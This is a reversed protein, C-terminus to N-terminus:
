AGLYRFIKAGYNGNTLLLINEDGQVALVPGGDAAFTVVGHGGFSGDRSGNTRIRELLAFTDYKSNFYSGAAVIRGSPDFALNHIMGDVGRAVLTSGGGAFTPDPEGTATLRTVASSCPCLDGSNAVAGGVVIRGSRDVAVPGTDTLPSSAIGSQGFSPDLAGDATLRLIEGFSQGNVLAWVSIVAGLGDVAIGSVFSNQIDPQPIVLGDTGFRPDPRGHSTLEELGAQISQGRVSGGLLIRGHPYVVMGPNSISTLKTKGDGSFTPDASGNPLYRALAVSKGATGLAVIRGDPMVAVQWVFATLTGGGSAAFSTTAVGDTGFALDPSGDPNLREVSFSSTGLRNLGGVVIKGDAQVGIGTANVGLELTGATGFTPDLDGAAAAAPIASAAVVTLGLVVSVLHRGARSM